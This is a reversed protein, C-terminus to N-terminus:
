QAGVTHWTSPVYGHGPHIHHKGKYLQCELPLSLCVFLSTRGSAHGHWVSMLLPTNYPPPHSFGGQFPSPSQKPAPPPM